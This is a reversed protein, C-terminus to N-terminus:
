TGKYVTGFGGDGLENNADFNNTAKELENYSFTRVGMYTGSGKESDSMSFSYSSVNRSVAYSVQKPNKRRYLIFIVAMLFLLFGVGGVAALLFKLVYM